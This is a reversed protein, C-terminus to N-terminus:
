GRENGRHHALLSQLRIGDPEKGAVPVPADRGDPREVRGAPHEVVGLDGGTQLAVRLVSQDFRHETPAPEIASRLTSRKQSSRPWSSKARLKIARSPRSRWTLSRISVRM